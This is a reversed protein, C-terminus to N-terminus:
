YVDCLQTFSAPIPCSLSFLSSIILSLCSIQWEGKGSSDTNDNRVSICRCGTEREKEWQKNTQKDSSEKDIPENQENKTTRANERRVMDAPSPQSAPSASGNRYVRASLDRDGKKGGADVGCNEGDKSVQLLSWLPSRPLAVTEDTKQRDTLHHHWTRYVFCDFLQLQVHWSYRVPSWPSCHRKKMKGSEDKWEEWHGSSWFLSRTRNKNTAFIRRELDWLAYHSVFRALNDARGVEQTM